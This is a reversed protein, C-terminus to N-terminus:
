TDAAGAPSSSRLRCLSGVSRAPPPATVAGAVGARAIVDEQLALSLQQTNLIGMVDPRDVGLEVLGPIPPGELEEANHILVSLETQRNSDALAAPGSLYDVRDLLQDHEVLRGRM